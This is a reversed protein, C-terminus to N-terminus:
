GGPQPTEGSKWWTEWQERLMGAPRTNAPGSAARPSTGGAIMTLSRLAAEAVTHARAVTVSEANIGRAAFQARADALAKAASRESYLMSGLSRTDDLLAILGPVATRSGIIGLSDAVQGLLDPESAESLVDVLIMEAQEGPIRQLAVIAHRAAKGGRAVIKELEPILAMATGRRPDTLSIAAADAVEDDPDNLLDLLVHEVEQGRCNDLVAVGLRRVRPDTNRVLRKAPGFASEETSALCLLYYHIDQPSSSQALKRAWWYARIEARYWMALCWLAVLLAIIAITPRRGRGPLPANRQSPLSTGSQEVDVM